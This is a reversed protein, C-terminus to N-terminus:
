LFIRDAHKDLFAQYVAGDEEGVLHPNVFPEMRTEEIGLDAFAQDIKALHQTDWDKSSERHPDAAELGLHGCLFDFAGEREINVVLFNARDGFDRVFDMFFRNRALIENQINRVSPEFWGSSKRGRGFWHNMASRIYKYTPRTNLVFFGNVYYDSMLRLPQYNGRDSFCDFKRTNWNGPFHLSKLGNRVFLKHISKTGSRPHGAVFVKRRERDDKRHLRFYLRNRARVVMAELRYIDLAAVKDFRGRSPRDWRGASRDPLSRSM